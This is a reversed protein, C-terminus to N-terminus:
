KYSAWLGPLDEFFQDDLVLSSIGGRAFRAVVLDIFIPNGTRWLRLNTHWDACVPYNLSYGGIERLAEVRYFIAQHCPTQRQLRDYDFAYAYIQKDYTGHGSGQIEVNGYIMRVGDPAGNAVNMIEDLVKASALSDDIGLFYVWPTKSLKIGLNMADYPGVDFVTIQVISIDLESACQRCLTELRSEPPPENPSIVFVTVHKTVQDIIGQIARCAQEPDLAPIVITLWHHSPANSLATAVTQPHAPVLHVGPIAKRLQDAAAIPCNGLILRCLGPDTETLGAPALPLVWHGLEADPAPMITLPLQARKNLTAAVALIPNFRDFALCLEQPLGAIKEIFIHALLLVGIEFRKAALDSYLESSDPIREAGNLALRAQRFDATTLSHTLQEYPSIAERWWAGLESEALTTSLWAPASELTSM